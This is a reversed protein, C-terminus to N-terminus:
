AQYSVGSAYPPSERKGYEEAERDPRRQRQRPRLITGDGPKGKRAEIGAYRVAVRGVLLLGQPKGLERDYRERCAVAQSSRRVKGDEGYRISQHQRRHVNFGEADAVMENRLQVLM